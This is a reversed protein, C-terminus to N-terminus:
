GVCKVRKSNRSTQYINKSFLRWRKKAELQEQNQVTQKINQGESYLSWNLFMLLFIGAFLFGLFYTRIPQILINPTRLNM